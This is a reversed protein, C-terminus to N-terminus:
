DLVYPTTSELLKGSFLKRFFNNLSPLVLFPGGGRPFYEPAMDTELDSPDPSYDTNKSNSFNFLWSQLSITFTLTFIENLDEM